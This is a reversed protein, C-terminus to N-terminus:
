LKYSLHVCDSVLLFQQLAKASVCHSISSLPIRKSKICKVNLLIRAECEIFVMDDPLVAIEIKKLQLRSENAMNLINSFLSREDSNNYRRYLEIDIFLTANQGVSIVLVYLM